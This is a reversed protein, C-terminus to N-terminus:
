PVNEYPRCTYLLKRRFRGGEATMVLLSTNRDAKAVVENIVNKTNQFDEESVRGQRKDEFTIEECM